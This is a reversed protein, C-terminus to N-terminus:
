SSKSVFIVRHILGLSSNIETLSRM